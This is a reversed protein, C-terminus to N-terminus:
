PCSCWSRHTIEPIWHKQVIFSFPGTEGLFIVTQIMGAQKQHASASQLVNKHVSQIIHGLRLRYKTFCRKRQRDGTIDVNCICYTLLASHANRRGGAQEFQWLMLNFTPIDFAWLFLWKNDGVTLLRTVAQKLAIKIQGSHWLLMQLEKKTVVYALNNYFSIKFTSM